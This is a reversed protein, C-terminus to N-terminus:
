RQYAVCEVTSLVFLSAKIKKEQFISECFFIRIQDSKNNKLFVYSCLIIFM